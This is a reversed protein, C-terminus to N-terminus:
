RDSTLLHKIAKPIPTPMSQQSTLRREQLVKFDTIVDRQSSGVDSESTLSFKFRDVGTSGTLTDKGHGGILSDNGGGGNLINNKANGTLTNNLTNGTGNIAGTGTLTLNEINAGLTYTISSKVTDTGASAAETVKDRASDVVYTDNGTGGAMQDAGARGDLYDNGGHGLLVDDYSSGYIFDNGRLVYSVLGEGDSSAAYSYYVSGPISLGTISWSIATTGTYQRFGTLSSSSWDLDYTDYSFSGLYDQRNGFQDLVVILNPAASVISLDYFDSFYYPTSM